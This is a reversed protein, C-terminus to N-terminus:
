RIFFGSTALDTALLAAVRSRSVREFATVGSKGMKM